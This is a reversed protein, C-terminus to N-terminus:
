TPGKQATMDYAMLQPSAITVCTFDFATACTVLLQYRNSQFINAM